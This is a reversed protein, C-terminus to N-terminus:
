ANLKEFSLRETNYLHIRKKLRIAFRKYNRTRVRIYKQFAVYGIFDIGFAIKNIQTKRTELKLFLKKELFEHIKKWTNQLCEKNESLIVFDDVYRAYHKIKLKHKAFHDLENLYINAFLQSTLNGIPLGKKQEDFCSNHVHAPMTEEHHSHIIKEILWLLKQDKIKRKFVAMLTHQDISYFYKSIDCKMFYDNQKHMNVFRKLRAFGKHTGKGKRCAFSDHIFTPDYIQELYNHLAHHVIHDRFHPAMIKREKYDNVYFITYPSPTYKQSALEKHLRWLNNHSNKTFERFTKDKKGAKAESYAKYLNPLAIIENYLNNYTKM